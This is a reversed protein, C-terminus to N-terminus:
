QVTLVQCSLVYFSMHVFVVNEWFLNEFIQYWHLSGDIEVSLTDYESGEAEEVLAIDEDTMYALDSVSSIFRIFKGIEVDPKNEIAKNLAAMLRKNM